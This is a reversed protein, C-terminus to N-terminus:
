VAVVMVGHRRCYLVSCTSESCVRLFLSAYGFSLILLSSLLGVCIFIKYFFNLYLLKAYVNLLRVIRIEIKVNKGTVSDASKGWVSMYCLGKRAMSDHSVSMPRICNEGTSGNHGRQM